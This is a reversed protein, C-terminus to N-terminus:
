PFTPASFSIHIRCVACHPWKQTQKRSDSAMGARALETARSIEARTMDRELNERRERVSEDGNAGAINFWILRHLLKWSSGGPGDPDDNGNNKEGSLEGPGRPSQEKQGLHVPNAKVEPRCSAHM